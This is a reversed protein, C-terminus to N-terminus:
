GESQAKKILRMKFLADANIWQNMKFKQIFAKDSENLSVQLKIVIFTAIM